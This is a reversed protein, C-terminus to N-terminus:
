EDLKLNSQLVVHLNNCFAGCIGISHAFYKEKVWAIKENCDPCKENEINWILTNNKLRNYNINNPFMCVGLMRVLMEM